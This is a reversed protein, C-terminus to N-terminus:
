FAYSVGVQLVPSFRLDRLASDFSQNGFIARGVRGAGSPNEAVLGLDATFGWRGKLALGTYGLGLYPVTNDSSGESALPSAGNQLALGGNRWPAGSSSALGRPGFMLGSTARLGGMSAPLRLGPAFYYDSLVAGSQVASRGAADGTLTVPALTATSVTIRAQWQPWVEQSKPPLLGDAAGASRCLAAVAFWALIPRTRM